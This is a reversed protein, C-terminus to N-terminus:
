GNMKGKPAMCIIDIIYEVYSIKVYRFAPRNLQQAYSMIELFKVGVIQKNIGM